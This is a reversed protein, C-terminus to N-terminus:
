AKTNGHDGARRRQQEPGRGRAGVLDFISERGEKIPAIQRAPLSVPRSVDHLVALDHALGATIQVRRLAKIIKNRERNEARQEAKVREFALLDVDRPGDLIRDVDAGGQVALWLSWCAECQSKPKSRAKYRKHEECKGSM